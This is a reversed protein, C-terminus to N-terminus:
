PHFEGLYKTKQIVKPDNQPIFPVGIFIVGRCLKDKFDIGESLKANSVCFMLAGKDVANKKFKDVNKM